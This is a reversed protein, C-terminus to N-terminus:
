GTLAAQTLGTGPDLMVDDFGILNLEPCGGERTHKAIRKIIHCHDEREHYLDGTLQDIDPCFLHQKFPIGAAQYEDLIGRYTYTGVLSRLKDLLSEPVNPSFSYPTHGAPVLNGRLYTIADELSM